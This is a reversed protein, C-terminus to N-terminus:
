EIRAGRAKLDPELAHFVERYHFWPVSVWLHHILHYNQGLLLAHRIRGQQIRTDHMRETSTFPYHPLYDFAYLLFMGALLWPVWFLLLADALHGLVALTVTTGVLVFDFAVQGWREKRTGWRHRLDLVRYRVVTSILWFPLLARPRHSVWHDPDRSPDNTHAHHQLHSIRFVPYTFSLMAAPLWGLLDNWGRHRSNARHVSEHLVTFGLYDGVTIAAVAAWAPILGSLYGVWGLTWGALTAMGVWFTPNRWFPLDPVGRLEADPAFRVSSTSEDSSRKAGSDYRDDLQNASSALAPSSSTHSPEVVAYM